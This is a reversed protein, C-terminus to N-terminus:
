ACGTSEGAEAQMIYSCYDSDTNVFHGMTVGLIFNSLRLGAYGAGLGDRDRMRERIAALDELIERHEAAHEPLAPYGIGALVEEEYRFHADLVGNLKGAIDRLQATGADQRWLDDIEDVFQFIERHQADLAADGVSERESWRALCSLSHQMMPVRGFFGAYTKMAM